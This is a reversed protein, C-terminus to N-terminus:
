SDIKLGMTGPSRYLKYLLMSWLIVSLFMSYTIVEIGYAKIDSYLVIRIVSYIIALISITKVININIHSSIGKYQSIILLIPFVPILALLMLGATNSLLTNFQISHIISIGFLITVYGISFPLILITLVILIILINLQKDFLLSLPFLAILLSGAIPVLLPFGSQYIQFLNFGGPYIDFIGIVIVILGFVISLIISYLLKRGLKINWLGFISFIIILCITAMSLAPIFINFIGWSNFTQFVAVMSIAMTCYIMPRKIFVKRNYRVKGLRM